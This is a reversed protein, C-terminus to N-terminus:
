QRTHSSRVAAGTPIRTLTVATRKTPIYSPEISVHYFGVEAKGQDTKILNQWFDIDPLNIKFMDAAVDVSYPTMTRSTSFWMSKDISAYLIPGSLDPQYNCAISYLGGDDPLTFDSPCVRADVFATILLSAAVIAHSVKQLQSALM